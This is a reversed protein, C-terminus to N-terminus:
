KTTRSQTSFYRKLRGPLKKPTGSAKRLLLASIEADGTSPMFDLNLVGDSVSVTFTIDLATDKGTVAYIDLHNL